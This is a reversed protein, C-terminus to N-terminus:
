GNTELVWRPDEETLQDNWDALDANWVWGRGDECVLRIVPTSEPEAQYRVTRYRLMQGTPSNIVQGGPLSVIDVIEVQRDALITKTHFPEAPSEEPM